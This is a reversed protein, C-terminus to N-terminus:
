RRASATCGNSTSTGDSLSAYTRYALLLLVGFAVLLWASALVASLSTVAILAATTVALTLVAPAAPRGRLADRLLLRLRSGGDRLGTICGVALVGVANALVAAAFAATWAAPASGGAWAVVFRFV